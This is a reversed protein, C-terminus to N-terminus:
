RAAKGVPATIASTFLGGSTSALWADGSLDLARVRGDM